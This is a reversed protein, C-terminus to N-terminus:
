INKTQNKPLKNNGTDLRDGVMLIQSKDLKYQEIVLDLM